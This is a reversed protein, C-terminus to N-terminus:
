GPKGGKRARAPAVVRAKPSARPARTAARARPGHSPTSCKLPMPNPLNSADPRRHQRSPTDGESRYSRKTAPTEDTKPLRTRGRCRPAEAAPADVVPKVKEREGKEAAYGLGQMLDAFQELTTGTISLMDPTAEFGARSDCARLLDALGNWCTSAFRGRVPRTIGRWPTIRARCTRSIRSRSWARRRAKPFNTLAKM